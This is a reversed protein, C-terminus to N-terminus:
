KFMCMNFHATGSWNRRAREKKEKGWASSRESLALRPLSPRWRQSRTLLIRPFSGLYLIILYKRTRAEAPIRPNNLSNVSLRVELKKFDTNPHRLLKSAHSTVQQLTKRVSPIDVTCETPLLFLHTSISLHVFFSCCCVCILLQSYNCNEIM